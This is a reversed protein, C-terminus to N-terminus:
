KLKRRFMRRNQHSYRVAFGFTILGIATFPLVILLITLLSTNVPDGHSQGAAPATTTTTSTPQTTPPATTSEQDDVPPATTPAETTEPPATTSPEETTEPPVTTPEATTPEPTTPEPTTPDPASTTEEPAETTPAATTTQPPPTTTEVPAETTPSPTTTAPPATTPEVEEGFITWVSLHNVTVSITQAETDISTENYLVIWAQQDPDFYALSMTSPDAIGAEDLMEPTYYFVFTYSPSSTDAPSVEVSYYTNIGTLGTPPAVGTPNIDLVVATLNVRQAVQVNLTMGDGFHLWQGDQNQMESNAPVEHPTSGDTTINVFEPPYCDDQVTINGGCTGCVDLTKGSNPVGDCGACSSGDGDCVGCDDNVKGSNPVGDCGDCTTGDGDCVGCPDETKGSNPVGDCGLCTSNTGNCVACADMALGSNPVGDCGACTSGNGGCVNCADLIKGSNPVGDCGSCSANNGGCVNCADYVIGSNAVGDCGACSSDDGGCVGCADVVAGSNPVGDCGACTSGNGGCVGCADIIKNSNPVGDCGACTSGNGGCVNCADLTKGSNPIGDCGACTTNTGNCVGCADHVLGSNPVGDCGACTSDDGECVGCADNIKGSNPVGDCGACSTDDGDCVGCADNVKGSNPVGDCGACTSNDGGCVGCADTVLGSNYVNDCGKEACDLVAYASFMMPSYINYGTTPYEGPIESQGLPLAATVTVSGVTSNSYYLNNDDCADASHIVAIWYTTNPLLWTLPVSITNWSSPTITQISSKVMLNDPRATSSNTNYIGAQFSQSAVSNVGDPGFYVKITDTKGGLYTTRYKTAYILYGDCSARHSGIAKYGMTITGDGGCKGCLDVTLGSNPVGDCGDCTTNDGGCVGCEDNVKGSNPVGDCGACTSNNGGCVNCADYVLGSNPVNDCGACTSNNGGCVGCADYVLGSNAVGDCGACTSNNGGCVGCADNVKGSNPVGDCGSCTSNNGSCVGCADVMAGGNVVGNCDTCTSNTGNCVGCADVVANGNPTGTCDACSTGNGDCVGCADNVKGSNPVGDCGSCTSGNGDCVGCADNVKGSNLVGDCGTCTSNNGGCVGCSDNVLGSNPVGDCGACTSNNGGCVGCADVVLGSNPVNDCGACSTGNGDCVGCADYVKGSGVVGDCGKASFTEVCVGLQCTGSWQGDQSAGLLCSTGNAKPTYSCYNSADSPGSGLGSPDCVADECPNSSDCVLATGMCQHAASCADNVTCPNGDDCPGYFYEEFCGSANCKGVVCQSNVEPYPYTQSCALTTPDNTVCGGYSSCVGHTWCPQNLNNCVAGASAITYLCFGSDCTVSTCNSAPVQCDSVTVCDQPTTEDVLGDCDNDIGDDPIESVPDVSGVCTVGNDICQYAGFQCAGVNSSGCPLGVRPDLVSECVGSDTSCKAIRCGGLGSVTTNCTADVTDQHISRMCEGSGDCFEQGNCEIGDDCEGYPDTSANFFTCTGEFGNLNCSRCPGRCISDCCVGDPSCFGSTCQTANVTDSATCAQGNAAPAGLAAPLVAM